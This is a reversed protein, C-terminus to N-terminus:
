RNGYVYKEVYFTRFCLVDKQYYKNNWFSEVTDPYSPHVFIMNLLKATLNYKVRVLVCVSMVLVLLYLTM